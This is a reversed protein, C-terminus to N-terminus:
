FKVRAGGVVVWMDETQLKTGPASGPAGSCNASASCTVDLSFHRAGLYLDTSAADVSQNVGLGWMTM